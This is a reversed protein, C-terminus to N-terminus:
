LIVMIVKMIEYRDKMNLQWPPTYHKPIMPHYNSFRNKGISPAVHTLRVVMESPAADLPMEGNKASFVQSHSPRSASKGANSM